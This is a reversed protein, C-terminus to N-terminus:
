LDGGSQAMIPRVEMAGFKANPWRAAIATAREITECEVILYGGLHEKAEAFPGDTIVPVGDTARVTRSQAPDALAEGGILEGSETIEQMLADMERMLGEGESGFFRERTDPNDYILLIYKV